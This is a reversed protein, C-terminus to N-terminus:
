SLICKQQKLWAPQPVTIATGAAKCAWFKQKYMGFM